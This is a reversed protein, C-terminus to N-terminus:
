SASLAVRVYGDVNILGRSSSKRPRQHRLGRGVLGVQRERGRAAPTGPARRRRVELTTQSPQRLPLVGLSGEADPIEETKIPPLISPASQRSPRQLRVSSESAGVRERQYPQVWARRPGKLVSAHDSGEHPLDDFAPVQVGQQLDSVDYAYLPGRTPSARHWPSQPLAVVRGGM